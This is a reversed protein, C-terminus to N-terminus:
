EKLDFQVNVIARKRLGRRRGSQYDIYEPHNKVFVPKFAKIFGIRSRASHGAEVCWYKYDEYLQQFDIDAGDDFEHDQMFVLVPNISETFDKILDDEDDTKTFEKTSLLMKYGEVSWNFIGPLEDLLKKTINKDAKFENDNEVDPNEVFRNEFKVFCIRRIFGHTYDKSKIFENCALIFKARSNFSLYDKNKYCGNIADGVVVQKFISEAGKVSTQTETSINLISDMLLIRQFPEILGSM